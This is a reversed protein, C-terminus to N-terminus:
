EQLKFKFIEKRMLGNSNYRTKVNMFTPYFTGESFIIETQNITFNITNEKLIYKSSNLKEWDNFEHVVENLFIYKVTGNPFFKIFQSFRYEEEGLHEHNEYYGDFRLLTFPNKNENLVYPFRHWILNSLNADWLNKTSKVKYKVNSSKNNERFHYHDNIKFFRKRLHIDRIFLNKNELDPDFIKVKVMGYSFSNSDIFQNKPDYTWVQAYDSFRFGIRYGAETLHYKSKKLDYKLYYGIQKGEKYHEVWITKLYDRIVWGNIPTMTSSDLAISFPYKEISKYFIPTDHEYYIAENKTSNQACLGSSFFIILIFILRKM